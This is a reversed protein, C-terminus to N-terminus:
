GNANGTSQGGAPRPEFRVKLDPEALPKCWDWWVCYHGTELRTYGDGEELRRRIDIVQHLPVRRSEGERNWILTLGKKTIAKLLTMGFQSLDLVDPPVNEQSPDSEVVVYFRM